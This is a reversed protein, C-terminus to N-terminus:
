GISSLWTAAEQENTLHPPDVLIQDNGQQHIVPQSVGLGDKIRGELITSVASLHALDDSTCHSGNLDCSAQLLLEVGGQLSPKAQSNPSSVCATVGMLLFPLLLLFLLRRHM